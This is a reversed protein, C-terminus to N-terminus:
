QTHGRHVHACKEEPSNSLGSMGKTLGYNEVDVRRIYVRRVNTRPPREVPPDPPRVFPERWSVEMELM